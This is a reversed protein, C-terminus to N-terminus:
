VTVEGNELLEKKLDIVSVGSIFGDNVVSGSKENLETIDEDMHEDDDDDDDDDKVRDYLVKGGISAVAAIAVGTAAIASSSKVGDMSGIIPSPIAIASSGTSGFSSAFEDLLTSTESLSDNGVAGMVSVGLASAASETVISSDMASVLPIAIDESLGGSVEPANGEIDSGNSVLEDDGSVPENQITPTTGPSDETGPANLKDDDSGGGDGSPGAGPSSPIAKSYRNLIAESEASFGNGDCYDQIAGTISGIQSLCRQSAGSLTREINGKISAFRPSPVLSIYRSPVSDFYSDQSAIDAIRDSMDGVINVIENVAQQTADPDYFIANGKYIDSYKNSM